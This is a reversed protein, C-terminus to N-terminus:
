TAENIKLPAHSMNMPVKWAIFYRNVNTTQPQTPNPATEDRESTWMASPALMVSEQERNKIWICRWSVELTLRNNGIRHWRHSPCCVAAKDTERVSGSVAIRSWRLQRLPEECLGVLPPSEWQGWKVFPCFQPLHWIGSFSIFYVDTKPISVGSGPKLPWVARYTWGCRNAMQFPILHLFWSHCFGIHLIIDHFSPTQNLPFLM